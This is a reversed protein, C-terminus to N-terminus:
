PVQSPQRITQDLKLAPAEQSREAWNYDEVKNLQQPLMKSDHTYQLSDTGFKSSPVQLTQSPAGGDVTLNFDLESEEQPKLLSEAEVSEQRRLTEVESDAAQPHSRMNKLSDDRKHEQTFVM